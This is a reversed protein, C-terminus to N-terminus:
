ATVKSVLIRVPCATTNAAVVTAPVAILGAMQNTDFIRHQGTRVIIGEGESYFARGGSISSTSYAQWGVSIWKLLVPHYAQFECVVPTNDGFPNTLVLGNNIAMTGAGVVAFGLRANVAVIEAQLDTNVTEIRTSLTLADLSGANQARGAYRVVWCGQQRNPQIYTVGAQYVANSASAKFVLPVGTAATAVGPVQTPPTVETERDGFSFAGEMVGLANVAPALTASLRKIVGTIEPLASAGMKGNNALTGGDGVKVPIKISGAQVGNDDPIRFKGTSSELVYCGRNLPDSQWEAETCLPRLGAVLTNYLDAFTVQDLEQGDRALCGDPLVGRYDHWFVEGLYGGAAAAAAEAASTAAATKSNAANTESTAANQESTHAASASAAAATRDSAVQAADAAVAIESADVSQKMTTVDNKDQTVQTAKATVDQHLAVMADQDIAKLLNSLYVWSPGTFTQGGPLRVTINDTTASFVQLWNDKDYNIQRLAEAAQVGLAAGIYSMIERPVFSWAAGTASPGTYVATVVIDTDSTVSKVPMTYPIGGVKTFIYDGIALDTAFVTGVGTIVDSGNVLTLTGASM